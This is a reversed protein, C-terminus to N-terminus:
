NRELLFLRIGLGVFLGGSVRAIWKSTGPSQLLVRGAGGAFMGVFGNILTGSLGVIGGLLFIQLGINGAAPNVFQPLLAIFFLAVKPNLINTMLGRFFLQGYSFDPMTNQLLPGRAQLLTKVGIWMLYLAGGVRLVDFAIDSAAILASVGVAALAAHFLAGCGIGLASIVGAGSGRQVGNAAAFIMDPGPTLNLVLTAALFMGIQAFEM